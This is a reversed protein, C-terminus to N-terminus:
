KIIISSQPIHSYSPMFFRKPTILYGPTLKVISWTSKPSEIIEAKSGM